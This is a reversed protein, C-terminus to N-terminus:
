TKFGNIYFRCVREEREERSLESKAKAEEVPPKTQEDESPSM